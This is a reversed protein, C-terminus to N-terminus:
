NEREYLNNRIQRFTSDSITYLPQLFREPFKMYELWMEYNINPPSFLKHIKKYKPNM